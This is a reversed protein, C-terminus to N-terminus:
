SCLSKIDKLLNEMQTDLGCEFIGSDTEILCDNQGMSSDAIFELELGRGVRGLIDEKQGELFNVNKESVKIRFRRDGEIHLITNNILHVLIQKKDDFQIHFVRNFVDVLVDVIEKEMTELKNRYDEELKARKEQTEQERQRDTQELEQERVAAGERYGKEKAEELLRQAEERAQMLLEDATRRAEETLREAEERAEAIVDQVEITETEVGVIGTTFSSEGHSEEKRKKELEKKLREELLANSNIVRANEHETHVFYQKYLNSM